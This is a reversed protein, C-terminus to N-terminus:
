TVLNMAFSAANNMGAAVSQGNVGQQDLWNQISPPTSNIMNQAVSGFQMASAQTNAGALNQAKASNEWDILATFASVYDGSMLDNMMDARHGVAQNAHGAQQASAQIFDAFVEFADMFTNGAPGYQVAQPTMAPSTMVNQVIASLSSM